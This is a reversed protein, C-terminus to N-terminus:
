FKSEKGLQIEAVRGSKITGAVSDNSLLIDVKSVQFLSVCGLVPENPYVPEYKQTSDM